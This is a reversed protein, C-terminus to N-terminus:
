EPACLVIDLYSIGKMAQNTAHNAIKVCPVGVFFTCTASSTSHAQNSILNVCSYTYRPTTAWGTRKNAMMLRIPLATTKFVVLLRKQPTETRTLTIAYKTRCHEESKHAIDM